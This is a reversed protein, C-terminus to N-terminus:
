LKSFGLFVDFKNISSGVVEDNLDYCNIGLVIADCEIIIRVGAVVELTM